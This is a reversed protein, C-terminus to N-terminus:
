AAHKRWGFLGDFMKMSEHRAEINEIQGMYYALARATGEVRPLLSLVSNAREFDADSTSPANCIAKCRDIQDRVGDAYAKLDKATLTM